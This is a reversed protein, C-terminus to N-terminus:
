SGLFMIHTKGLAPWHWKPLLHSYHARPLVVALTIIYRVSFYLNSYIRHLHFLM